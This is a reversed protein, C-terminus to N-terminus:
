TFQRKCKLMTLLENYKMPYQTFRHGLMLGIMGPFPAGCSWFIYPKTEYISWISVSGSTFMAGIHRLSWPSTSALMCAYKTNSSIEGWMDKPYIKSLAEVHKYCDKKNADITATVQNILRKHRGYIAPNNNKTATKHVHDSKYVKRILDWSM